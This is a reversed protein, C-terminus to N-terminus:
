GLHRPSGVRFRRKGSDQEDFDIGRRGHGRRSGGVACAGSAGCFRLDEHREGGRPDVAAVRLWRGRRPRTEEHSAEPGSTKSDPEAERSTGGCSAAGVSKEGACPRISELTAEADDNSSRRRNSPRRGSSRIPSSGTPNPAAFSVGRDFDAAGMLGAAVARERVGAIMAAYTRRTFGEAWDPRAGDVYVYRPEVRVDAFGAAHLLPYLRRGVNADGGAARQLDIQCEIARRAYASDPHFLTSGHDGEIAVIRGGPRLVRRLASLAAQPDALHELVFCLFVADFSAEPFPLALINAVEFSVDGFGARRTAAEAEALSAASVDISILRAHPSRRALEVTQAGVGCGAELVIEDASFSVGDHLLAALTAAQDQLRREERKDYGHVYNESM